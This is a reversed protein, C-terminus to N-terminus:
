CGERKKKKGGGSPAEAPMALTPMKVAPAVSEESGTQPTGGFFKSVEKMKEFHSIEEATANSALAPFLIKNKWEKLGGNLIYVGKYGDSKLLFWAQAANVDDDSYLIIKMNRLLDGNLLNNIPINFSNPIHYEGFEKENRLDVLSYDANGKIIWDALTEVNIKDNDKVSSLMLEKANVTVKYNEPSGGIFLAVVGLLLTFFGLKKEISSDKIINKM